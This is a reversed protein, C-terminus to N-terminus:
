DEDSESESGSPYTVWDGESINSLSSQDLDSQLGTVQPPFTLLSPDLGEDMRDRAKFMLGIYKNVLKAAMISAPCLLTKVKDERSM